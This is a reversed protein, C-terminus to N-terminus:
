PIHIRIEHFKGPSGLDDQQFDAHISVNGEGLLDGSEQCTIVLALAPGISPVAKFFIEPQERLFLVVYVVSIVRSKSPLDAPQM